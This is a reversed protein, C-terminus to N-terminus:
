LKCWVEPEEVYTLGCDTALKRGYGEDADVAVVVVRYDDSLRALQETVYGSTGEANHYSVVVIGTIM